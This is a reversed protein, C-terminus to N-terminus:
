LYVRVLDLIPPIAANGDLWSVISQMSKDKKILDFRVKRVEDPNKWWDQLLNFLKKQIDEGKALYCPSIKEILEKSPSRLLLSLDFKGNRDWDELFDHWESATFEDGTLLKLITKNDGAGSYDLRNVFRSMNIGTIDRAHTLLWNSSSLKNLQSMLEANTNFDSIWLSASVRDKLKKGRKETSDVIVIEPNM